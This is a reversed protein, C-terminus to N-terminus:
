ADNWPARPQGRIRSVTSAEGGITGCCWAPAAPPSSSTASNKWILRPRRRRHPHQLAHRQRARHRPQAGRDARPRRDARCITEPHHSLDGLGQEGVLQRHAAHGLAARLRRHAAGRGEAGPDSQCAAHVARGAPDHDGGDAATVAVGMRRRDLRHHDCCLQADRGAAQTQGALWASVRAPGPM